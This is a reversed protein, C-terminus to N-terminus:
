STGAHEARLKKHSGVSGLQAVRDALKTKKDTEFFFRADALRPRIVRENGQVIASADDLRMNSVIMFRPLRKGGEGLLPFYKQNQQMTLVLCEQPVSLFEEDFAGLYVEPREVLATVEDLLAAPPEYRDTLQASKERLKASIAARRVAFDAIVAGEDELRGEYEDANALSIDRAGQFRHGHTVRGAELGLAKVPVIDTGHLAVLGHAPRVFQVTTAGDALQYSMVKPIPLKKIAEGVSENLARELPQGVALSRLYVAEAKGDSKIVLSDPGGNANPFADAL